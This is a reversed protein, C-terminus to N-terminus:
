PFTEVQTYCISVHKCFALELIVKKGIPFADDVLALFETETKGYHADVRGRQIDRKIDAM